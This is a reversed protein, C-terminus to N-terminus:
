LAQLKVCVYGLIKHQKPCRKAQSNVSHPSLPLNWYFRFLSTIIIAILCSSDPGLKRSALWYIMNQGTRKACVPVSCRRVLHCVPWYKCAWQFATSFPPFVSGAPRRASLCQCVRWFDQIRICLPLTNSKLAMNWRWGERWEEYIGPIVFFHEFIPEFSREEWIGITLTLLPFIVLSWDHDDMGLDM